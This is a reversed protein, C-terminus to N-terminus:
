LRGRKAERVGACSLARHGARTSHVRSPSGSDHLGKKEKGTRRQAEAVLRSQNRQSRKLGQKGAALDGITQSTGSMLSYVTEGQEALQASSCEQRGVRRAQTPGLANDVELLPRPSRTLPHFSPGPPWYAGSRVPCERGQNGNKRQVLFKPRLCAQGWARNM